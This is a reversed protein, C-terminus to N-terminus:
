VTGCRRPGRVNGSGTHIRIDGALDDLKVDGSGTEMDVGAQMGEITQDGSGRSPASM